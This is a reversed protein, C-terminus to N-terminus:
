QVDFIQIEPFILKKEVFFNSNRFILKKQVSFGIAVELHFLNLMELANTNYIGCM